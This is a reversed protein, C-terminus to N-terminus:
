YNIPVSLLTSGWLELGDGTVVMTADLKLRSKVTAGVGFSLHVRNKAAPYLRNLDEDDGVAHILHGPNTHLGFRTPITFGFQPVKFLWELGAHLQTANAVTLDRARGDDAVNLNHSSLLDSYKIYMVDCSFRLRSNILLYIGFGYSDPMSLRFVRSSTDPTFMSGNLQYQPFYINSRLEYTPNFNAVAGFFLRDLLMNSMLGFSYSFKGNRDSINNIAYLTEVSNPRPDNGNQVLPDLFLQENFKFDLASNKVTVGIGLNNTVAFAVSFADYVMELNFNVKRGPYNGLGGLTFAESGDSPKTLFQRTEFDYHTDLAVQRFLAFSVRKLPLFIGALTQDFNKNRITRSTFTNDAGDITANPVDFEFHALRQHLTAEVSRLFALGAPNIAAATVDQAAGIFAGGLAASRAGPQIFDIRVYGLNIPAM